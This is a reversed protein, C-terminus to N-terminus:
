HRSPVSRIDRACLASLLLVPSEPLLHPCITPTVEAAYLAISCEPLQIHLRRYIGFGSGNMDVSYNGSCHRPPRKSASLNHMMNISIFVVTRRCVQHQKRTLSIMNRPVSLLSRADRFLPPTLFSTHHTRPFFFEPRFHDHTRALMSAQVAKRNGLTM